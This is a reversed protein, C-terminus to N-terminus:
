GSRLWANMAPVPLIVGASYKSGPCTSSFTITSIAPQIFLHGVSRVHCGNQDCESRGSWRDRRHLRGAASFLRMIAPVFSNGDNNEAASIAGQPIFQARHMLYRLRIPGPAEPATPVVSRLGRGTCCAADLTTLLPRAGVTRLTGLVRAPSQPPQVLTIPGLVAHAHEGVRPTNPVDAQLLKQDQFPISPCASPAAPHDAHMRLACSSRSIIIALAYASLPHSQLRKREVHRDLREHLVIAGGLAHEHEADVLAGHVRGTKSFPLVTM